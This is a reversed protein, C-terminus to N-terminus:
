STAEVRGPLYLSAPSRGARSRTEGVRVIVGHQRLEGLARLATTESVGCWDAAFRKTFPAAEDGDGRLARLGLLVAFRDRLLHAAESAEAPLAPLGVPVPEILRAARLLDLKWVAYEPGSRPRDRGSARAAYDRADRVGLRDLAARVDPRQDLERLRDGGLDDPGLLATSRTPSDPGLLLSRSPGSSSSPGGVQDVVQDAHLNGNKSECALCLDNTGSEGCSMCMRLASM